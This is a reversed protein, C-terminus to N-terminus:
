SACTTRGPGLRHPRTSSWSRRAPRPQVRVAPVVGSRSSRRQSRAALGTQKGAQEEEGTATSGGEKTAVADPEQTSVAVESFGSDRPAGSPYYTMVQTQAEKRNALMMSWKWIDLFVGLIIWLWDWGEIGGGGGVAPSWALLYMITTYPLFIIGLLPM